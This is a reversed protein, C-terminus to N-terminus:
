WLYQVGVRGSVGSARQGGVHREYDAAAFAHLNDKVQANFGLGLQAWTRGLATNLAVQNQGNLSSFTTQANAGFGHWINARAWATYMRRDSGGWKKTVRAGLRGHVADSDEFDILGFRDRTTGGLSINQYILQAQPEITWNEALKISYGGELSAAFGWGDPSIREGGMSNAHVGQYRTVQAVADVYSRSQSMGTWYAGVTYGQMSVKGARGGQVADVHAFGRSGAFYAGAMQRSGDADLRRYLDAGVQIGAVDYEYRPGRKEFDSVRGAGVHGGNKVHGSSGFLRGWARREHANAQRNAASRVEDEGARDHYTGLVDLGLRHAVAPVAMALPVEQRYNPLAQSSASSGSGAVVYSRLYWNGDDADGEVGGHHLAYEYAGAAVRSGLAFAGSDSATKDRVEVLEIGNGATLHGLAAPDYDVHIRTAGGAGLQTRDVILMDAYRDTSNTATSSQAGARLHLTGGNSVFTGAGPGLAPDAAGTILLTNGIASGRLDIVGAHDFTGLNLLQGQVVGDRTTDYVDTPMVRNTSGTTPLYFGTTDVTSAGGAAGLRLAGGAQNDFRSDISGFDSAAIRKTDRAGDGDTDAFHRLEFTGGSQNTVQNKGGAALDLFGTITGRNELTLNGASAIYRGEDVIARDSGASITGANKISTTQGGVQVGAARYGHSGSISAVDSQWGGTIRAGSGIQLATTKSDTLATLGVGFEGQASVAGNIEAMVEAWRLSPGVAAGAVYVGFTNAGTAQVQAGAAM